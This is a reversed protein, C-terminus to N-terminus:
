GQSEVDVAPVEDEVEPWPTPWPCTVKWESFEDITMPKVLEDDELYDEVQDIIHCRADGLYARMGVPESGGGQAPEERKWYLQLRGNAVEGLIMYGGVYTGDDDFLARLYKRIKMAALLADDDGAMKLGGQQPTLNRAQLLHSAAVVHQPVTESLSDQDKKWAPFIYLTLEKKKTKKAM